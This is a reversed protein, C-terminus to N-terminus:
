FLLLLEGSERGDSVLMIKKKNSILVGLGVPFDYESVGVEASKTPGSDTDCIRM